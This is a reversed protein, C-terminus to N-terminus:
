VAGGHWSSCGKSLHGCHQKSSGASGASHPYSDSCCIYQARMDMSVNALVASMSCVTVRAAHWGCALTASTCAAWPVRGRGGATANRARCLTASSSTHAVACALM